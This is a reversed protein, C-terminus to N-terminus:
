YGIFCGEILSIAKLKEAHSSNVELSMTWPARKRKQPKSSKSETEREIIALTMKAIINYNFASNGKKKLSSDEKFGYL